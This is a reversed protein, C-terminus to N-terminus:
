ERFAGRPLAAPGGPQPWPARARSRSLRRATRQARPGPARRSPPRGGRAAAAPASVVTAEIMALIPVALVAAPAPAPVHELPALPRWPVRESLITRLVRWGDRFTNLNSNGERRPAEFSAVERVRLGYRRARLFLQAEIEFGDATLELREFAERTFAAYGYCLDTNSCSFLVNAIALLCRNGLDRLPTMDATGAGPLFRSGKVLDNGARLQVLFRELERPDMSGDADLMVIDEGTAARVGVRLAAGKGPQGDQVVVIDPRVRRAVEVTGDTSHGDVLVVEDVVDPLQELVWGINGAENKAPIVVSVRRAPLREDPTTAAVTEPDAVTMQTAGIEGNQTSM